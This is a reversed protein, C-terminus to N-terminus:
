PPCHSYHNRRHVAGIKDNVRFIKTFRREISCANAVVPNSYKEQYSKTFMMADTPRFPLGLGAGASKRMRRAIRRMGMIHIAIIAKLAM